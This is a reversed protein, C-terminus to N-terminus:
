KFSKKKSNSGWMCVQQMDANIQTLLALMAQLALDVESREQNTQDPSDPSSHRALERMLLQYKM